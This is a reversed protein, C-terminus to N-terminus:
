THRRVEARALRENMVAGLGDDPLRQAVLWDLGQGDLDILAGYFAQAAEALDGRPSLRLATPGELVGTPLSTFGLWGVRAGAPLVALAPDDWGEVVLLPTHPSYHLALQGPAVQAVAADGPQTGPAPAAGPAPPSGPAPASGPPAPAAHLRVPVGLREAIAAPPLAGLRYVVVEELGGPGTEVGVVTSELGRGCPGGDLIGAIRDGLQAQVHEARTPSVYGFPNASPAALPFDLSGLLALAMPHDPMRVGVRALGATVADPVGPARELLLTLPGPWFAAMLRRALPPVERVLGAVADVSGVHLILPNTPPRGKTQFIQCVVDANLGNCALGYVTETPIAVLGGARLWEAAQQIDKTVQAM